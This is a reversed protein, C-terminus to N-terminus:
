KSKQKQWPAYNFMGGIGAAQTAGGRGPKLPNVRPGGVPDYTATYPATNAKPRSFSYPRPTNDKKRPTPSIKPKKPKKYADTYLKPM